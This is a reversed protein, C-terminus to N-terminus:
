KPAKKGVLTMLIEIDVWGQLYAPNWTQQKRKVIDFGQTYDKGPGGQGAEVTLWQDGLPLNYNDPLWGERVAIGRVGIGLFIYGTVPLLPAFSDRSTHWSIFWATVFTGCLLLWACLWPHM